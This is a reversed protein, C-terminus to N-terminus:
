LYHYSSLFHTQTEPEPLSQLLLLNTQLYPTNTNHLMSELTQQCNSQCCYGYDIAYFDRPILCISQCNIQLCFRLGISLCIGLSLQNMCFIRPCIPRISVCRFLIRIFGTGIYCFIGFLVGALRTIIHCFIRFLVGALRTIIHCFIRFLIGIFGPFLICCIIFFVRLILNQRYRFFIRKRLCRLIQLFFWLCLFIEYSIICVYFSQLFQALCTRQVSISKLKAFQIIFFKCPIQCITIFFRSSFIKFTKSTFFKRKFTGYTFINLRTCGKFKSFRQKLIKSAPCLKCIKM